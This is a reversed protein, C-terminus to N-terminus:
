YNDNDRHEIFYHVLEKTKSIWYDRVMTMARGAGDGSYLGVVQADFGEVENLTYRGSLSDRYFDIRLIQDSILEPQALKFRAIMNEAVAALTDDDSGLTSVGLGDGDKHPNRCIFKGNFCV